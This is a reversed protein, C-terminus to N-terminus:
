GHSELLHIESKRQFNEALVIDIDSDTRDIVKAAVATVIGIRMQVFFFRTRM